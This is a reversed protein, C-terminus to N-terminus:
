KEDDKKNKCFAEYLIQMVDLANRDDIFHYLTRHERRFAIIGEAKLKALHQSVSTQKLGTQEIIETVSMEGYEALKCLILLRHKSALSKLFAEAQDVGEYIM